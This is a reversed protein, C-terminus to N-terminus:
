KASKDLHRNFFDKARQCYGARDLFYVGCHWAQPLIWIEKTSKAAAFLRHCHEVPTTADQGGHIFYIPVDIKSVAKLPSFDALKQGTRREFVRDAVEIVPSTPLRTATQWSHSLITRRDVFSSDAWVARIAPDLSAAVLAVAAGQSGGLAGIFPEKGESKFRNKTYAVAAQFDELERHGLTRIDNKVRNKGCGRGDFLVVNFGNRWLFSGVGLMDQRRGGYGHCTVIVKQSEPRPFFWGPVNRGDPLPFTIEEYEVCTEFPSFSYLDEGNPPPVKTIKDILYNAMMYASASTVVGGAFMIKTAVGSFKKSLSKEQM